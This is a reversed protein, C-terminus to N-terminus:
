LQRSIATIKWGDKLVMTEAAFAHPKLEKTLYYGKEASLEKNPIVYRRPYVVYICASIWLPFCNQLSSINYEKSHYSCKLHRLFFYTHCHGPFSEKTQQPQLCAHVQATPQESERCGLLCRPTDSTPPFLFGTAQARAGPRERIDQFSQFPCTPM